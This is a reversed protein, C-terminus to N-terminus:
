EKSEEEIKVPIKTKLEEPIPKNAMRYPMKAVDKILGELMTMFLNMVREKFELQKSNNKQMAEVYQQVRQDIVKGFSETMESFFMTGLSTYMWISYKMLEKFIDWAVLLQEMNLNSQQVKQMLFYKKVVTIVTDTMGMNNIESYEKLASYLEPDERALVGLMRGVDMGLQKRRRARSTKPESSLSAM